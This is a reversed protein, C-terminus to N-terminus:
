TNNTDIVDEEPKKLYKDIWRFLLKIVVEGILTVAVKTM